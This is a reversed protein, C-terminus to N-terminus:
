KSLEKESMSKYNIKLKIISEKFTDISVLQDELETADFHDKYIESDLQKEQISFEDIKDNIM